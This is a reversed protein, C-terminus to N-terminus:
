GELRAVSEALAIGEEQTQAISSNIVLSFVLDNDTDLWCVNVTGNMPDIFSYGEYGNVTCDIQNFDMIEGSADIVAYGTNDKDALMSERNLLTTREEDAWYRTYTLVCKSAPLEESVDLYNWMAMEFGAGGTVDAWLTNASDEFGRMDVARRYYRGDLGTVDYSGLDELVTTWTETESPGSERIEEIRAEYAATVAPYADAVDDAARFDIADAVARLTDMTVAEGSERGGTSITVYSNDLDAFIFSVTRGLALEVTTGNATTYAECEYEEPADGLLFFDCFSGKVARYIHMAATRDEMTLQVGYLSFSGDDMITASCDQGVPGDEITGTMAAFPETGLMSWFATLTGSYASAEYLRLGYKEAIGACKDAISRWGIDYVAKMPDDRDVPWDHSEYDNKEFLWVKWEQMALYEPNGEVAPIYAEGDETSAYYHEDSAAKQSVGGAPSYEYSGDSQIRIVRDAMTMQYVAFVSATLVAVAAAILLATKLGKKMHKHMDSDKGRGEQRRITDCTEALTRAFSEPLEADRSFAEYLWDDQTRKM